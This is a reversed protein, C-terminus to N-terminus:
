VPPAFTKRLPDFHWVQGLCGFRLQQDSCLPPFAMWEKLIHGFAGWPDRVCYQLMRLLIPFCWIMSSSCVDILSPRPALGPGPPWIPATPRQSTSSFAMWEKLIHGFAGWPDWICHQLMRLLIPVCCYMCSSCVDKSSPWLAWGPGPLWIPATQGRLFSILRM